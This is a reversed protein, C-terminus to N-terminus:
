LNECRVSGFLKKSNFLKLQELIPDKMPDVYNQYSIDESSQPQVIRAGSVIDDAESMERTGYGTLEVDTVISGSAAM